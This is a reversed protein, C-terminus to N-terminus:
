LEASGPSTELIAVAICRVRSKLGIGTIALGSIGSYTGHAEDSDM